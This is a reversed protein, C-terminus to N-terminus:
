TSRRRQPNAAQDKTARFPASAKQHFQLWAILLWKKAILRPRSPKLTRGHCGQRLSPLKGNLCQKNDGTVLRLCGFDNPIFAIISVFKARLRTSQKM